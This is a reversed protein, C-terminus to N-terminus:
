RYYRRDYGRKNLNLLEADLDVRHFLYASGCGLLVALITCLWILWRPPPIDGKLYEFEEMPRRVFEKMAIQGIAPVVRQPELAALPQGRYNDILNRVEIDFAPNKSWSMAETWSVLGGQVGVVVVADNKKFGEWHYRLTRAYDRPANVFVVVVNVQKAPGVTSLMKSLERNWATKNPVAVNPTVVRDIRWYDYIRIPYDPLIKAYTDAGAKGERFLTNASAKVWNKYPHTMAVPDGQQVISWRRPEVAGQADVRRITYNQLTSAVRWDQEWPYVYCTDCHTTCSQSVNGKSDTSSTCTTVCNCSYGNQCPNMTNTPCRYRDVSKATVRGSLVEHDGGVAARGGYWMAALVLSCAFVAVIWELWSIDLRLVFKALLPIIVPILVIGFLIPEM